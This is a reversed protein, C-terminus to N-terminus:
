VKVEVSVSELQAHATFVTTHDVFRVDVGSVNLGTEKEFEEIQHALTERMLAELSARAKRLEAGPPQPTTDTSVPGAGTGKM